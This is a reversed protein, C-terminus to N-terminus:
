TRRCRHPSRSRRVRRRIRSVDAAVRAPGSASIPSATRVDCRRRDAMGQDRPARSDSSDPRYDFPLAGALLAAVPRCRAIDLGAERYKTVAPQGGRDTVTVRRRDWPDRDLALDITGRQPTPKGWVVALYEKDVRLAAAARQLATQIAPRKSVLVLGSTQKDLRGALGPKSGAPWRRALTLIGNLLTGTLNLHSPHSVLGAPKNVVLLDDDEYLIDIPISEADPRVREHRGAMRVRLDDDAAIRWAARPAPQGNILVEGGDIWRQIRTRSVGPEHRLHRLLVRDVRIGADGRDVIIRRWKESPMRSGADAKAQSRLGSSRRSLSPLRHSM